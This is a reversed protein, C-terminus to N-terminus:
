DEINRITPKEIWEYHEHVLSDDNAIRGLINEPITDNQKLSNTIREEFDQMAETIIKHIERIGGLRKKEPNIQYSQSLFGEQGERFTVRMQVRRKTEIFYTHKDPLIDGHYYTHGLEDQHVVGKKPTRKTCEIVLLWSLFPLASFFMIAYEPFSVRLLPSFIFSGVMLVVTFTGFFMCRWPDFLKSFLTLNVSDSQGYFALKTINVITRIILAIILAGTALHILVIKTPTEFYQWGIFIAASSLIIAICFYRLPFAPTGNM